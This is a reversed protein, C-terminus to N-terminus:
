QTNIQSESFKQVADIIFYKVKNPDASIYSSAIHQLFMYEVFAIVCILGLNEWFHKLPNLCFHLVFLALFAVGVVIGSVILTYEALETIYANNERIKVASPDDKNKNQEEELDKDIERLIYQILKKEDEKSDPAFKDILDSWDETINDIVYNIQHTFQQKEIKVVYYFFFLTLFIFIMLVQMVIASSHEVWPSSFRCHTSFFSEKSPM